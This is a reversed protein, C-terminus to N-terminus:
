STEELQQILDRSQEADLAVRHFHDLYRMYIGLTEPLETYSPGGLSVTIAMFPDTDDPRTLLEFSSVGIAARGDDTLVRIDVNPLGTLSALHALQDRMVGPGGVSQKLVSEEILLQAHLPQAARHLVTQRAIRSEVRRQVQEDTLPDISQREIAAAYERTQFMGPVVVLAFYDIRGAAHMLSEYHSLWRPVEHGVVESAHEPDLIRGLRSLGIGLVAALDRRRDPSPARRGREWSSVTDPAVGLREALREQTYGAMERLSALEFRPTSM